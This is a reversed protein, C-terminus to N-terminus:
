LSNRGSGLYNQAYHKVSGPELNGYWLEELISM